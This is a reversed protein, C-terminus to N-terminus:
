MDFDTHKRRISCWVKIITCISNKLLYTILDYEYTNKPIERHNSTINESNRRSQVNKKKQKTEEDAAVDTHDAGRNSSLYYNEEKTNLIDNLM